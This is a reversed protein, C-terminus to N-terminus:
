EKKAKATKEYLLDVNQNRAPKTEISKNVDEKLEELKL